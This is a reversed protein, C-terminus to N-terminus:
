KKLAELVYKNTAVQDPRIKLPSGHILEFELFATKFHDPNVTPDAPYAVMNREFSAQFLAEATDKFQERLIKRSGERDTKLFKEAKAIARIMGSVIKPNGDLWDERSILSIYPYGTYEPIEGGAFDILNIGPGRAVAMEVIPSSYTIASVKGAVFAALASPGDGVPVLVADKKIDLKAKHFVFDVFGESSSKAAAIGIPQGKLAMVRDLFPSSSTVNAKDAVDKRLVLTMTPRDMLMAYSIVKAGRNIAGILEFPAGVYVHASRAITAAMAKSGGGTVVIEAEIGEDAFYGNARAVYIPGYLFSHLSQAFIVKTAQASAATGGCVVALSLALAYALRRAAIRM